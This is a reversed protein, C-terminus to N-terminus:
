VKVKFDRHFVGSNHLYELGNVIQAVYFQASEFSFPFNRNIYDSLDGNSCYDLVM